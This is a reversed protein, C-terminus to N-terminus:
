YFLCDGGVLPPSSSLLAAQRSPFFDDYAERIL